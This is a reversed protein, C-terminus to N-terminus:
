AITHFGGVAYVVSGAVILAGIVIALPLTLDIKRAQPDPMPAAPTSDNGLHSHPM